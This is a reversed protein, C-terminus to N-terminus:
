PLRLIRAFPVVQQALECLHRHHTFFIVQGLKAMEGCLRLVEASRPEDFTEMIDDAIFPVTPRLTAFEEYGAMRLALYLQFRTGKSMETAKSSGGGRRLGILEERDNGPQTALGAWQGCTMRSFAQSARRLMASRHRDRYARLAEQAVMGGSRLKLYRIALEEIELLVTRRAGEIRAVADDGGVAHLRDGARTMEAFLEKSRGELDALRSAIAEREAPLAALDARDLRDLAEALSAARLTSVIQRAHEQRREELADRRRCAELLQRVQALDAAGLLEFMEGARATQVRLLEAAEQREESLQRLEQAREQRMAQEARAAELRAQLKRAAALLDGAPSEGLRACLEEVTRIFDARDREMAAVRHRLEELERLSEPLRAAEEIMARVAEPQSAGFWTRALAENWANEWEGARQRAAELEKRRNKLVAEAEAQREVAETKAAELAQQESLLNEALQILAPLSLGDTKVGTAALSAALAQKEAELAELAAQRARLAEQLAQWAQLAEARHKSWHEIRLLWTTATEEEALEIGDPTAARIQRRLQALDGAITAAEEQQQRRVAEMSSIDATLARLEELERAHRLRLESAADVERMRTEFLAATEEDLTELHRKWAIDRERLLHTARDDEAAAIGGRLAALRATGQALREDLEALRERCRAQRAELGALTGRWHEIEAPAPARIGGLEAGDGQWPRLKAVAEAFAQQRSPLVRDAHRWEALLDRERLTRLIAQLAARAGEDMRAAAAAAREAARNARECAQLAADHEREATQRTVDIGSRGAILDRLVELPEAALVLDQPSAHGAKGLRALIGEVKREAEALAMRRRPLDGEAARCRAEALSLAEIRAALGLVPEDAASDENQASIRAEREALAALRTKLRLEEEILGAIEDHWRAPPRPLGALAELEAAIQRFAAALPVAGLLAAIEEQRARAQGIEEMVSDYAVRAQDLAAVLMRHTSAQLDHQERRAKLEALERKLEAMRTTSARRRFITDAERAAEELVASIGALGASASFLLHGLDGKSALIANGGDELTQDDLSFMTRYADRTMGALPGSLMAESVPQGHRDLLSGARRKVRQLELVADGTELCAGVALNRGEHQFAYQTREEIGFLFDLWASLATSKGAENLGYVIHLDPLGPQREGFEICHGTFKGYRILDLRRLRM